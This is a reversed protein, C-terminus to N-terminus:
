PKGYCLLINLSLSLSIEPQNFNAKGKGQGDEGENNKENELSNGSISGNHAKKYTIIHILTFM